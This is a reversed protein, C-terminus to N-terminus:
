TEETNRSPGLAQFGDRLWTPSVWGTVRWGHEDHSYHCSALCRRGEADTLLVPQYSAPRQFPPVTGFQVRHAVLAERCHARVVDLFAEASAFRAQMRPALLAFAAEADGAAFAELQALVLGRIANLDDAARKSMAIGEGRFGGAPM